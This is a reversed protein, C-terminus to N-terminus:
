NDVIQAGLVPAWSLTRSVRCDGWCSWNKRALYGGLRAIKTPYTGPSKRQPFTKGKDDVLDDLLGIEVKTSAISPPAEPALRNIMAMWFVRWSLICFVSILNM